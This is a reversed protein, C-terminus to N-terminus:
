QSFKVWRGDDTVPQDDTDPVPKGVALIPVFSVADISEIVTLESEGKVFKVGLKHFCM